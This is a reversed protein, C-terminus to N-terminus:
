AGGADVLRTDIALSAIFNALRQSEATTLDVPLQLHATVGSRIPFPYDMLAGNDDRQMPPMRRRVTQAGVRPAGNARSEVNSESNRPRDATPGKWNAPDRIYDLFSTVGQTFRRRYDKLSQPALNRGKLNQFRRFAEEADLSEMDLNEWNEQVSLVQECATKLLRASTKNMLGKEAALEWHDILAKGNKEM